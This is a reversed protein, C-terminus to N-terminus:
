LEGVGYLQSIHITTFSERDNIPNRLAPLERWDAKNNERFYRYTTYIGNSARTQSKLKINGVPDSWDFSENEGTRAYRDKRGNSLNVKVIETGSIRAIEMLVFNEENPLRNFLSYGIIRDDDRTNSADENSIDIFSSGDISAIAAKSFWNSDAGASVPQNAFVLLKSNNVFSISTFRMSKSGFQTPPKSMNDTSWVRVVPNQGPMGALAAIHKGDPSIRAGWVGWDRAMAEVPLAPGKPKWGPTQAHASGVFGIACITSTLLITLRKFNM